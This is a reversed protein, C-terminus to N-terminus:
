HATWPWCDDTQLGAQQRLKILLGSSDAKQRRNVCCVDIHHVAANGAANGAAKGPLRAAYPRAPHMANHVVSNKLRMSTMESEDNRWM